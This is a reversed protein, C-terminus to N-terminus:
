EAEKREDIVDKRGWVQYHGEGPLRYLLIRDTDLLVDWCERIARLAEEVQTDDALSATPGTTFWRWEPDPM